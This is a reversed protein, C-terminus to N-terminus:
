VNSIILEEYKGRNNSSAAIVSARSIVKREFDSYLEVISSHNANTVIIKVNRETARVIADRLRVQDEWKFMDENYKVFGNNNHKVTYPPDAFVLDGEQAFDIIAEFDSHM